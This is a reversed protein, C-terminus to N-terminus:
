RRTLAVEIARRVFVASTGVLTVTEGVTRVIVADISLTGTLAIRSKSM